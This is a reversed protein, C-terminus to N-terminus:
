IRIPGESHNMLVARVLIVDDFVYRRRHSRAVHSEIWPIVMYEYNGCLEPRSWRTTLTSSRYQRSRESQHCDFVIRGRGSGDSFRCFVRM